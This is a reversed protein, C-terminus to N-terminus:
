LNDTLPGHTLLLGVCDEAWTNEGGRSRMWTLLSAKDLEGIDVSGYAGDARKARVYIGTDFEGERDEDTRLEM